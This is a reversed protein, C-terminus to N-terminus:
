RYFVQTGVSAVRQRTRFFSSAHGSSARFFMAGSAVDDEAGSLVSRAVAVADNWADASQDPHYAATNFFQGPQNAVACISGGFRGASLRNALTQAVAVKGAHTEHGAEHMVVKAMCEVEATALAVPQETALVEAAQDLDNGALPVYDAASSRSAALLSVATLPILAASCALRRVFTM